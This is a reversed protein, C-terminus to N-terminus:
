PGERVKLDAVCLILTYDLISYYHPKSTVTYRDGTEEVVIFCDGWLDLDGSVDGPLYVKMQGKDTLGYGTFADLPASYPQVDGKYTGLEEYGMNPSDYTDYTDKDKYRYLRITYRPFFIM